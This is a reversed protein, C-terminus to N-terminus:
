RSAWFALAVLLVVALWMPMAGILRALGFSVIVLIPVAALFVFLWFVVRM